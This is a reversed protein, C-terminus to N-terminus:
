SKLARELSHAWTDRLTAVSEEIIASENYQISLVGDNTVHGIQTASVGSQKAARLVADLKAPTVSIIARAGSEGFLASEAPANEKLALRAGLNDAAFCSEALAVALGGDSLDHASHIARDAAFALLSQLLRKEAALDIVPPQGAVIGGITKSYESSSFERQQAARQSDATEITAPTTAAGNL